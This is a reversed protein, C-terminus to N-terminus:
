KKKVDFFKQSYLVGKETIGQIVVRFKGAIDSTYFNLTTEKDKELVQAYNWYITSFYAPESAESYSDVYFEKHIHIGETRFFISEDTVNCGQYVRTSVRSSSSSGERFKYSQGKIPQRNQPHGYHNVCNLINAVCVYDGCANAGRGGRDISRGKIEVMDLRIAAKETNKVFLDNNDALALVPPKEDTRPLKALEESAKLLQNNISFSHPVDSKSVFLFMRKGSATYLEPNDLNFNGNPETNVLRIKEDGMAGVQVPRTLPRNNSRTVTGTLTLNGYTKVTDAATTKFLGDWSYRRWGKILLLQELYNKDKYTSGKVNVPMAALENNLYTFNEIDTMKGAELRDDQVVAISVVATEDLDKLNLKLSVKERTSYSAKNSAIGIKEKNDYHAFFLREVLPREQEDTLTFSALGKPALTLPLVLTNTGPQVDIKAYLHSRRFNHVRLGIQQAKKASITFKLTDAVAASELQITIGEEHMKPLTFVTDNLTQGTVKFTYEAGQEPTLKFSGLGNANSSASQIPDGNKFLQGKVAIPKNQADRVEWGINNILGSVINGGEAYFKVKPTGKPQAIPMNIFTSDQEYKLKIYINPDALNEKQEITLIAQGAGDTKATKTINGYTYTIDAPKDLFRNNATTAAVLIKHGKSDSSMIKMSAKFPPELLSKITIPQTFSVEPKNNVTRDTIAMLRYDGVPISDPLVINGFSFGNKMVFRDELVVKNNDERILSVSMIKHKDINVNLNEAQILYGTFWITENNSYVNKDFHVFLNGTPKAKQYLSFQNALPDQAHVSAVFLCFFISLITSRM